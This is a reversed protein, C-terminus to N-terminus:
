GYQYMGGVLICGAAEPLWLVKFHRILSKVMGCMAMVFVVFFLRSDSIQEEDDTSCNEHYVKLISACCTRAEVSTPDNLLASVAASTDAMAKSSAKADNIATAHKKSENQAKEIMKDGQQLLYTESLVKESVIQSSTPLALNVPTKPVVAATKNGSEELRRHERQWQRRLDQHLFPQDLDHDVLCSADDYLDVVADEAFFFDPGNTFLARWSRRLWLYHDYFFLHVRKRHQTKEWLIRRRGGTRDTDDNSCTKDFAKKLGECEDKGDTANIVFNIVSKRCLLAEAAHMTSSAPLPLDDDKDVIIPYNPVGATTTDVDVVPGSVAQIARSQEILSELTATGNLHVPPSDVPSTKKHKSRRKPDLLLKSSQRKVFITGCLLTGILFIFVGRKRIRLRPTNSNRFPSAPSSRSPSRLLSENEEEATTSGEDRGIPIDISEPQQTM